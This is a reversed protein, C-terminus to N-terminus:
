ALHPNVNAIDGLKVIAELKGQDWSSRHLRLRFNLCISVAPPMKLLDLCIRGGDDINPHYVPTEFNVKPPEM